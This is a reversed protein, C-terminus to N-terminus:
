RQTSLHRLVCFDSQFSSLLLKGASNFATWAARVGEDTVGDLEPALVYYDSSITQFDARLDAAQQRTLPERPVALSSESSMKSHRFCTDVIPHYSLSPLRTRLPPKSPQQNYLFFVTSSLFKLIAENNGPYPFNIRIPSLVIM